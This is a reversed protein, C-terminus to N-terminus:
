QMSLLPMGLSLKDEIKLSSFDFLELMLDCFRDKPIEAGDINLRAFIFEVQKELTLDAELHSPLLRLGSQLGMM